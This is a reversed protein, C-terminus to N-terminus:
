AAPRTQHTNTRLGAVYEALCEVPVRRLRGITVSEIEGSMVLSYMLTRDIGLRRSAEEITLVLQLPKTDRESTPM